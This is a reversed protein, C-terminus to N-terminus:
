PPWKGADRGLMCFVLSVKLLSPLPVAEDCLRVMVSNSHLTHLGHFYLWETNLVYHKVSFSSNAADVVIVDVFVRNCFPQEAGPIGSALLM